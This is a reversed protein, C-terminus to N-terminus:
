VNRRSIYKDLLLDLEGLEKVITELNVDVSEDPFDERILDFYESRKM